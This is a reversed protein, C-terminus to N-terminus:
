NQEKSKLKTRENRKYLVMLKPRNYRQIMYPMLNIISNYILIPLGIVLFLRPAVFICLFGLIFSWLHMKEAYITEIMFEKIHENNTMDGLQTKDFIALVKGAEPIKDKWERIGISIYFKNEWKFVNYKKNFPDIKNRPLIFRISSVVAVNVVILVMASELLKMMIYGESVHYVPVGVFLALFCTLTLTIFCLIAFIM